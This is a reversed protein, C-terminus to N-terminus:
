PSKLWQNVKDTIYYAEEEFVNKHTPLNIIKRAVDQAHPCQDEYDTKSLYKRPAIPADYWIDSVYIGQKELFFILNERNEVFIPFRLNSSIPILKKIDKSLIKSDLNEAYLLAIKRRHALDKELNEFAIKVLKCYWNPLDFLNDFDGEVPKSLLNVAKLFFHIIRGFGIPYTKRIIYTFSPYFQDRLQQIASINKPEAPLDKQYKKNRIVLAGGSVGDIMKDQSFSLVTFDGVTGAERANTYKAGVSHALDEILLINKERCIKEIEEIQCPYGITNQIIVVRVHSDKELSKKLTEPTFNLSKSDIDLYQVKFGANIVAKYAAWCTFGTIAVVSDEPLDAIKLALEIAERGKYTLVVKGGYKNELFSELDLRFDSNNSTFLAKLVFNGDYNSGLSNFISM